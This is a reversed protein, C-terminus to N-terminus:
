KKEFNKEMYDIIEEYSLYKLSNYEFVAGAQTKYTKHYGNLRDWLEVRNENKFCKLCFTLCTSNTFIEDRKMKDPLWELELM